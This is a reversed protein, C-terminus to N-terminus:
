AFTAGTPEITFDLVVYEITKTPQIFIQGVLQNRDVVDASNNSDDMVVRYAYLGQRQVVSELYPNVTALFKNRTAITNQEFVLNKAQDGVFKKLEILLRRVNVRDLASAKTQLTKQGFVTIGTGPFSAIPNVKGAYLTDREGKTLRREAQIVGGIGGRVLGAPAFWPASSADTFAYVGPIVTSAPVWENKGTSTRTQLWPWYSAAYSSNLNAASDTVESVTAGHGTLDVVAICDGRSEALSIVADIQTPHDEANLGPVAIVNFQYDDKNELLAIAQNYDAGTLGQTQSAINKYFNAGAIITGTASHFSGSKAQPLSASYSVGAADLNVTLGDNGLYNLTPLNVASVRVFNSRNPYEGQVTLFTNTGDTGITTTQSGIRSEIYDDSAPDLSLNNFTELVVKNKTSDDGRRISLTFTGRNNNINSVEWRLNDESGSVLSGDSNHAGADSAATSNNYIIGKGLTELEFPYSTSAADTGGQVTILTFDPAAGGVSGTKFLIGNYATGAASGSLALVGAVSSASVPLYASASNIQEVLNAATETADSGTSFYFVNGSPVDGPVPDDSAVFTYTNSGNVISYQQGDVARVITSSGTARNVGTVKNSFVYTSTAPDYSDGVSDVVRTILATQGGNQFYNKVSLSTLYEYKNSGSSFTVGFKRVYDNYSTVLTPQEVPGKVTPGIFAAGAAVPAPQIFSIDNERTFVGPSIISEAM